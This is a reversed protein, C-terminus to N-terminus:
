PAENPFRVDLGTGWSLNAEHARVRVLGDREMERLKLPATVGSPKYFLYIIGGPLCCFLIVVFSMTGILAAVGPAIGCLGSLM